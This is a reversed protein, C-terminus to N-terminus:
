RQKEFALNLMQTTEAVISKVKSPEVIHGTDQCIFVTENNPKKVKILGAPFSIDLASNALDILVGRRYDSMSIDNIIRIMEDLAYSKDDKTISVKGLDIKPVMTNEKTNNCENQNM